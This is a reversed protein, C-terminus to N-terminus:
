QGTPDSMSTQENAQTIIPIAQTTTAVSAAVSHDPEPEPETFERLVVLSRSVLTLADGPDLTGLRTAHGATDIVPEWRFDLDANPIHTEVDNESANFYIIFSKDRIRGGRADRGAIADGNLFLGVARVFAENWAEDSMQSGDTSLWIVDPLGEGEGRKAVRGNFFHHRRFTPHEHRLAALARTFEM